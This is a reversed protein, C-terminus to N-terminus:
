DFGAFQMQGLLLMDLPAPRRAICHDLRQCNLAGAQRIGVKQAWGLLQRLGDASALAVLRFPLLRREAYGAERRWWPPGIIGRFKDRCARTLISVEPTGRISILSPYSM